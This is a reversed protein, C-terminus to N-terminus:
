KLFSKEAQEVDAQEIFHFPINEKTSVLYHIIRKYRRWYLVSLTYFIHISGRGQGVALMGGLASQPTTQM